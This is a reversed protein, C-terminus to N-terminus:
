RRTSGIELTTTATPNALRGIAPKWAIEMRETPIVAIATEMAAVGKAAGAKTATVRTATAKAKRALRVTAVSQLASAGIRIVAASAVVTVTEVAVAADKWASGVTADRAAIAESAATVAIVETVEIAASAGRIPTDIVAPTSVDEM